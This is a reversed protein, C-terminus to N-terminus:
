IIISVKIIPNNLAFDWQSPKLHPYYQSEYKPTTSSQLDSVEAFPVELNVLMLLQQKLIEELLDNHIYRELKDILNETPRVM